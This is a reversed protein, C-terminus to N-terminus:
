EGIQSVRITIMDNAWGPTPKHGENAHGSISVQFHGTSNGVLGDDIIGAAVLVSTTFQQLAETSLNTGIQVLRDQESESIDGDEVKYDISWSM